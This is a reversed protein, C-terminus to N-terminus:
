IWLASHSFVDRSTPRRINIYAVTKGTHGPSGFVDHDASDFEYVRRAFSTLDPVQFIGENVFHTTKTHFAEIPRFITKM